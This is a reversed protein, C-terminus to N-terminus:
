GMMEDARKAITGTPGTVHAFVIRAACAANTRRKGDDSGLVCLIQAAQVISKREIL